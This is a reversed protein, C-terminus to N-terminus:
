KKIMGNNASATSVAATNIAKRSICLAKMFCRDKRQPDMWEDRAIVNGSKELQNFFGTFDYIDHDAAFEKLADVYCIRNPGAIQILSYLHQTLSVIRWQRMASKLSSDAFLKAEEEEKLNLTKLAQCLAVGALRYLQTGVHSSVVCDAYPKGLKLLLGWDKEKPANAILTNIFTVAKEVFHEKKTKEFIFATLFDTSERLSSSIDMHILSVKSSNLKIELLKLTVIDVDVLILRKCKDSRVFCDLREIYDQEGVMQAGYVVVTSNPSLQAVANQLIFKPLTVIHYNDEPDPESKQVFSSFTRNAALSEEIKLYRKRLESNAQAISFDFNRRVYERLNAYILQTQAVSVLSTSSAASAATSAKEKENSAMCAAGISHNPQFTINSSTM